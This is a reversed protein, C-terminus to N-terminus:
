GVTEGKQEEIAKTETREDSESKKWQEGFTGTTRNRWYKRLPDHLKCSICVGDFRLWVPKQESRRGHALLYDFPEGDAAADVMNVSDVRADCVSVMVYVLPHDKHSVGTGVM